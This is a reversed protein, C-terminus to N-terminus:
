IHIIEIDSINDKLYESVLRRHCKEPTPESCLLCAGNLEEGSLTNEIKREKILRSFRLVYEDWDIQKKKYADLIEKTPAWNPKHIYECNCLEKLFFILDDKKAFGALQSVNNLRIDILKTIGANRLKSFFTKANKKTFGITYLKIQPMKQDKYQSTPESTEYAIEEGQRSYAENLREEESRFMEPHNLNFLKLLRQESSKHAEVRGNSMIHKITTGVPMLNRCILITRHCTIPDKESCMLAIRFKELGDMIRKLGEKFKPKEAVLAYDVKGNVYCSADDVRAGCFDGLFVYAIQHRKLFKSFNEKNFEPKYKSYPSSRVDAVATIQYKKLIRLFSDLIHPSYGITFLESDM